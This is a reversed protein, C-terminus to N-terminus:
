QLNLLKSNNKASMENELEYHRYKDYYSWHREIGNIVVGIVNAGVNLLTKKAKLVTQRSSISDRVVLIVSDVLTSLIASDAFYLVPPSDIVIHTYRGSLVNLLMKMEASCFLNAPAVTREGATLIHLNECGNKQIAKEITQGDVKEATLLTTLGIRNPLDKILHVRPCRLDADILLIPNGNRALSQALNLATLTKGENEEGSTVLITQPPGGATSFMLNTRLQMYAESFEPKEFVENQYFSVSRKKRRALSLNKPLLRKGISLPAVPIAALLPLGLITEVDDTIHVADNLWELLFALGGGALLSLLFAFLVNKWREPGVPSSPPTARAAVLVNNPTGNLIVDNERSRQLLGDLLNKNTDIEQQIIRYNISAENQRIVEARQNEFEKRLEKERAVAEGLREQLTALQIDSARKRIALLQNEINEIQKRTEVVEYWEDTYETKLQALRQRLESLKTELGAVQSDNREATAARMQNQLAAQYATQANIRDNEAQGLKLNLDGFRQVVTNQGADLSVIKNNKSYNILREEGLRIESQLEAVRKQLFDGASANTQVKQELNQLVYVDGIANVVKAAIQPDQHTYEVEILRTERNNMRFDKVPNVTLSGKIRGVLPAYKEADKEPDLMKDSYLILKNDGSSQASVPPQEPAPPTYLGFMKQVNQFVTLQKGHRPNLFNQNHELDLTKVVGRLLGAGELIQLQTTFYAPDSGPNNVIVSSGGNRSSGVAPNNEANVQIRVEAKYYDPKQAVYFIVATTVLLNLSLILFWHKRLSMFFGRLLQREDSQNISDYYRDAYVGEYHSPYIPEIKVSDPSKQSPILSKLDSNSKPQRSNKLSDYDDPPRLNNM